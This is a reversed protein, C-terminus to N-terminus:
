SMVIFKRNVFLKSLTMLATNQASRTPINNYVKRALIGGDLEGM